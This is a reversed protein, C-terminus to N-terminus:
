EAMEYLIRVVVLMAAVGLWSIKIANDSAPQANAGPKGSSTEDATTMYGQGGGYIDGMNIPM